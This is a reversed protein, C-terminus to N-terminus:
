EGRNYPVPSGDVPASKQLAAASKALRVLNLFEARYGFPDNGKTEQALEIVDDYSYTGTYRSGKLLQGFAAVSTAFRTDTNAEDISSLEGAKTIPTTILKSTDSDPNKYRIKLFAYEDGFDTEAKHKEATVAYRSEDVARPGGVPTIEYIATVTHGSGIDGADVADNNFDERNLARTEYGILRYEAVTDPNFEVQIKVDKAITFLSSSAEEVLVKRAENLSDIYAAVGNGNQALTQMMHDNLNGQGFGLVSLFIGSKRKREVFDKLEDRNTIGVNFDGDTALIIRNVGEKDFNEEALRYAQRIGEAGATSGGASLNELANLIKRKESVKTPELVTGAAGAYVVIAVTDNEELTDLLLKFSNKLLPLKDPANMSGSVDLLFVLNSRPKDEPAIDYGKIGIHVLKKGNAWPSPVVTVSPKFPEDRTEPLPYDYDFYNIMEEIRVADKQPLLGNNIQRRMFAYSSTDVDISFTSVPEEKVVRIQNEEFDEFKDRGVDQYGPEVYIDSDSMSMVTGSPAAMSEMAVMPAAGAISDRKAAQRSHIKGSAPPEAPGGVNFQVANLTSAEVEKSKKGFFPISPISTATNEAIKSFQNSGSGARYNAVDSPHENLQQLSVTAALVVVMATALGGYVYRKNMPYRRKDETTRGTLRSFITSGKINKQSEKGAAEFEAMALNVARKRANEGAPPTQINSLLNKLDREDM